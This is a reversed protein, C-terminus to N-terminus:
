YDRSEPRFEQVKFSVIVAYEEPSEEFSCDASLQMSFAKILQLGLGLDGDESEPEPKLGLSNRCEFRMVGDGQDKLAFSIWAEQGPASGAFSLSNTAIESALLAFPVAQDPFMVIDDLDMTVRLKPGGQSKKAAALQTFLERLMEGVNTRSLDESQYLSRHVTAMGLIREQLRRIAAKTEPSHSKRIKMNMISSILQLNNKVRHYVEKLLVNKERLADEMRAEDNLLAYAMSRFSYELQRIEYPRTRDLVRNGIKRDIAFRRMEASLKHLPRAALRHVAFIAVALSALWMLLPFLSAPITVGFRSAPTDSLEWIGLAYAIDPVIETHVYLRMEGRQNRDLFTRSGGKALQGLNQGAPVEAAVDPSELTLIQGDPNFTLLGVPRDQTGLDEGRQLQEVGVSLVAFGILKGQVAVPNYVMVASVSPDDKQAVSVVVQRPSELLGQFFPDEALTAFRGDSACRVDGGVPVFGVYSYRPTSALYERLYTTCADVNERVMRLVVSLAEAAGLGREIIQRESSAAQNTLALLSLESRSRAEESLDRTQLVALLGLPLLALSLFIAVRVSLRNFWGKADTDEPHETSM